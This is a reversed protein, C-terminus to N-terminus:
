MNTGHNGDSVGKMLTIEITFFDRKNSYNVILNSYKKQIETINSLGFGSHGTKSTYGQKSLNTVKETSINTNKIIFTISEALNIISIYITGDVANETSEISNDITIGLIRVLDFENVPVKKLPRSCEFSCQIEKQIIQNLKSILLSKLYPIQINGLDRYVETSMNNLYTDSYSSLSNLYKQLDQYNKNRINLELGHLLNKYDHKFRRLSLQDHELQDTYNKLNKLQERYLRENYYKKQRKKELSFILIIFLSQILLFIILGNIFDLYAEFYQVSIILFFMILYSYGLLLNLLMSHQSKLKSRLNLRLILIVILGSIMSQILLSIPVINEKGILNVLYNIIMTVFVLSVNYIIFTILIISILYSNNKKEKYILYLLVPFFIEVMGNFLIESIFFIIVVFFYIIIRKKFSFNSDEYLANFILLLINMSFFMNILYLNSSITLM